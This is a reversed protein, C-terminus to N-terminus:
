GSGASNKGSRDQDGEPGLAWLAVFPLFLVFGLGAIEAIADTTGFDELHHAHFALHIMAVFVWAVCLPTVLARKLTVAAWVFMLSFGLYLGGVDTVLHENFPPLRDVWHSIFPYGDYFGRPDIAAPLAVTATSVALLVLSIRASLLRM